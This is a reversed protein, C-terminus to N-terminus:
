YLYLYIIHLPDMVLLSLLIGIYISAYIKHMCSMVSIITARDQHVLVSVHQWVAACIFLLYFLLTSQFLLKVQNALNM